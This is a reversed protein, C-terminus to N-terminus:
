HYVVTEVPVLSFFRKEIRVNNYVGTYKDFFLKAADTTRDDQLDYSRLFYYKDIVQQVNDEETARKTQLKILEFAEDEDVSRIANWRQLTVADREDKTMTAGTKNINSKSPPLFKIDNM